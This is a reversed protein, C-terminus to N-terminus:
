MSEEEQEHIRLVVGYKELTKRILEEDEIGGEDDSFLYVELKLQPYHVGYALVQGLAHKWHKANKIEIVSSDTLMDIYGAPTEVEVEGELKRRLYEQVERERQVSKSPKLNSIATMFREANEQKSARWEEIWETVQVQFAPSVWMALHPVVRPHIWRAKFENPVNLDSQVLKNEAIGLTRSLEALYEKANNNRMYSRFAKGGVRCIDSSHFFGDESRIRIKHGAIKVEEIGVM